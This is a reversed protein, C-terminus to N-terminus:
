YNSMYSHRSERAQFSSACERNLLNFHRQHIVEHHDQRTVFTRQKSIKKVVWNIRVSFIEMHSRFQQLLNSFLQTKGSSANWSKRMFYIHPFFTRPIFIQKSFNQKLNQFIPHFNTLHSTNSKLKKLKIKYFFNTLTSSGLTSM